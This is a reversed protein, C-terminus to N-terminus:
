QFQSVEVEVLDQVYEQYQIYVVVEMVIVMLFIYWNKLFGGSYGRLFNDLDSEFRKSEEDNEFKQNYVM